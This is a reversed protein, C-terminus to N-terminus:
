PVQEAHCKKRVFVFGTSLVVTGSIAEYHTRSAFGTGMKMYKMLVTLICFNYLDGCLLAEHVRQSVWAMLLLTLCMMEANYYEPNYCRM